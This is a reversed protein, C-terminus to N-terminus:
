TRSVFQSIRPKRVKRIYYHVHPFHEAYRAKDTRAAALTPYDIGFERGDAYVRYMPPNHPTKM